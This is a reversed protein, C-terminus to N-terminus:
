IVFGSYDDEEEKSPDSINDQMVEPFSLEPHNYLVGLINM